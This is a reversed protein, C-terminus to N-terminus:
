TTWCTLNILLIHSLTRIGAEYIPINESNKVGKQCYVSYIQTTFLIFVNSSMPVKKAMMGCKISLVLLQSISFIIM